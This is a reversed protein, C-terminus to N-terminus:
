EGDKGARLKAAFATAAEEMLTYLEEDETEVFSVNDDCHKAFMEVGEARVSNLYADTAATKIHQKFENSSDFVSYGFHESKYDDAREAFREALSKYQACEVALADREAKLDAYDDHYVFEGEPDNYCIDQRGYGSVSHRKVESM